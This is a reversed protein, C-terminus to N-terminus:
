RDMIIVAIRDLKATLRQRESGVRSAAVGLIGLLHLVKDMHTHDLRHIMAYTEQLRSLLIACAEALEALQEPQRESPDTDTLAQGAIVAALPKGDVNIFTRAYLLGAHCHHFRPASDTGEALAAWSKACRRRGTESTLILNCFACSRGPCTMWVIRPHLDSVLLLIYM